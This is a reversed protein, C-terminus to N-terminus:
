AGKKERKAAAHIRADLFLAHIGFGTVVTNSVFWFWFAILSNTPSGNTWWHAGFLSILSMVVLFLMTPWLQKAVTNITPSELASKVLEPDM